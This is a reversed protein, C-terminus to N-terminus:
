RPVILAYMVRPKKQPKFPFHLSPITAGPGLYEWSHREIGSVGGRLGEVRKIGGAEQPVEM